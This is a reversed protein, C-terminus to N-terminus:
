ILPVRDELESNNAAQLLRSQPTRSDGRTPFMAHIMGLLVPLPYQYARFGGRNNM